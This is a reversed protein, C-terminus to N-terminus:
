LCLWYALPVTNQARFSSNFPHVEGEKWRGTLRHKQAQEQSGLREELVATEPSCPTLMHSSSLDEAKVPHVESPVTLSAIDGKWDWERLYSAHFLLVHLLSCKKKKKILTIESDFVVTYITFWSLSFPESFPWWEYQRRCDSDYIVGTFLPPWDRSLGPCGPM